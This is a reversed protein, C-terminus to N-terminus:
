TLTITSSLGRKAPLDCDAECFDGGDTLAHAGFFVFFLGHFRSVKVNAGELGVNGMMPNILDEVEEAARGPLTFGLWTSHTCSLFSSFFTRTPLILCSDFRDGFVDMVLVNAAVRNISRHRSTLFYRTFGFGSSAAFLTTKTSRLVSDEFTMVAHQVARDLMRLLISPRHPLLSPDGPCLCFIPATSSRGQRKVQTGVFM